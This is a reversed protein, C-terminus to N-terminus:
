KVRESFWKVISFNYIKLLNVMSVREYYFDKLFFWESLCSVRANISSNYRKLWESLCFVHENMASNYRKKKDAMSSNYRKMFNVQISGKWLLLNFM